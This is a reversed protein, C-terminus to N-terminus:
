IPVGDPGDTVRYSNVWEGARLNCWVVYYDASILGPSILFFEAKTPGAAHSRTLMASGLQAGWRDYGVLGCQTNGMSDITTVYVRVQDVRIGSTPEYDIIPCSAYRNGSGPLVRLGNGLNDFDSVQSGFYHNCNTGNFGTTVTQAEASSASLLLAGIAAFSFLKM